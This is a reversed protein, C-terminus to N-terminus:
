ARKKKACFVNPGSYRYVNRVRKSPGANCDGDQHVYMDVIVKGKKVQLSNIIAWNELYYSARHVLKHGDNILFALTYLNVNGGGYNIVIIAAADKFGDHNFDGYVYRDDYYIDWVNRKIYQGNILTVADAQHNNGVFYTMNGFIKSAEKDSTFGCLFLAAGLSLIVSILRM